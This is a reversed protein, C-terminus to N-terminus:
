LDTKSILCAKKRFTQTVRKLLALDSIESSLSLLGMEAGKGRGRGRWGEWMAEVMVHNGPVGGTCLGTERGNGESANEEEM